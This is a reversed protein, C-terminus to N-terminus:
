RKEAQAAKGSRANRGSPRHASVDEGQASLAALISDVDKDRCGSLERYLADVYRAKDRELRSKGDKSANESDSM